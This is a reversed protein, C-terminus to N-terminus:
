EAAQLVLVTWCRCTDEACFGNPRKRKEISNTVQAVRLGLIKADCVTRSGAQVQDLLNRGGCESSCLGDEPFTLVWCRCRDQWSELCEPPLVKLVDGTIENPLCQGNKLNDLSKINEKTFCLRNELKKGYSGIFTDIQNPRFKRKTISSWNFHKSQAKKTVEEM